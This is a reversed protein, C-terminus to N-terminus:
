TPVFQAILDGFMQDKDRFGLHEFKQEGYEEIEHFLEGEISKKM